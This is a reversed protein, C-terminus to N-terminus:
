APALVVDGSVTTARVEVYPAGEAPPGTPAVTSRVEGSLSTIDTWVPLGTPVGLHVDCSAGRFTLRGASVVDVTADGSGSLMTLDGGLSAVHVDGSGTKVDIPGVARGLDVDGSGTSVTLAGASRGVVVDGSGSKVVLHGHVVEVHVDGSATDVRAEGRVEDLRVAGSSTRVLATGCRGTLVVDASATRTSLDTDTPVRLVVELDTARARLGRGTPTLLVLDDGDRRIAVDGADRGTVEVLTAPLDDEAHLTISGREVEVRVRVHGTTEFRHERHQSHHNM